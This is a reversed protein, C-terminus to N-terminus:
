HHGGSILGAIFSLLELPSKAIQAIMIWKVLSQTDALTSGVVKAIQIVGKSQHLIKENLSTAAVLEVGNGFVGQLTEAIKTVIDGDVNNQRMSILADTLNTVRTGPNKKIYEAIGPSMADPHKALVEQLANSTDSNHTLENLVSQIGEKIVNPSNTAVEPTVPPVTSKTKVNPIDINKNKTKLYILTGVGLTIIVLGAIAFIMIKQNNNKQKPKYSEARSVVHTYEDEPNKIETNKEQDEVKLPSVISAEPVPPKYVTSSGCHNLLILSLTSIIIKKMNNKYKIM